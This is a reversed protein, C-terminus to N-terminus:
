LIVTLRCSRTFALRRSKVQLTSRVSQSALRCAAVDSVLPVTFMAHKRGSWVGTSRHLRQPVCVGAPVHAECPLTFRARGGRRSVSLSTVERRLEAVAEKVDPPINGDRSSDPIRDTVANELAKSRDTDARAAARNSSGKQRRRKRSASRRQGVKAPQM